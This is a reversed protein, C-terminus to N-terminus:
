LYGGKRWRANMLIWDREEDTFLEKLKNESEELAYRLSEVEDELERIRHILDPISNCAAVIYAADETRPLYDEYDHITAVIHRGNPAVRINNLSDVEWPVPIDQTSGLYKITDETLPIITVDKPSVGTGDSFFILGNQGVGIYEQPAWISGEVNCKVLVRDGLKFEAM